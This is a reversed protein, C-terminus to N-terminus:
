GPYQEQLEASVWAEVRRHQQSHTCRFHIDIVQVGVGNAYWVDNGIRKM